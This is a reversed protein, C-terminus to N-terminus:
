RLAGKGPSTSLRRAPSTSLRRARGTPSGAPSTRSLQWGQQQDTAGINVNSLRRQRICAWGGVRGRGLSMIGGGEGSAEGVQRSRTPSYGGASSTSGISSRRRVLRRLSSDSGLVPVIPVSCDQVDHPSFMDCDEEEVEFEEVNCV